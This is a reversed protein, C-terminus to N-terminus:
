KNNKKKNGDPDNNPDTIEGGTVTTGTSSSSVTQSRSQMEGQTTPSVNPKIDEKQCSVLTLGSGILLVGIVKKM